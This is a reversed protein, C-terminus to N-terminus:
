PLKSQRIRNCLAVGVSSLRPPVTIQNDAGELVFAGKSRLIKMYEFNEPLLPNAAGSQVDLLFAAAAEPVNELLSAVNFAKGTISTVKDKAKDKAARAKELSAKAQTDKGPAPPMPRPRTPDNRLATLTGMCIDDKLRPRCWNLLTNQWELEEHLCDIVSRAELYAKEYDVDPGVPIKTRLFKTKRATM